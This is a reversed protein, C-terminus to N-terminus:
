YFNAQAARITFNRAYSTIAAGVPNFGPKKTNGLITMFKLANEHPLVIKYNSTPSSAMKGNLINMFLKALTRKARKSEMKLKRYKDIYVDFIGSIANFYMGDLIKLGYVNYHELFLKFDVCTLTLEVTSDHLEGSLDCYQSYYKGKYFIDSSELCETSKYM